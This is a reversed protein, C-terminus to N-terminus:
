MCKPNQELIIDDSINEIRDDLMDLLQKSDIGDVKRCFLAGSQVIDEYDHENLVLPLSDYLRKPHWEIYRLSNRTEINLEKRRYYLITSFILEDSATTYRFRKLFEPHLSCYDLIYAICRNSLSFWNWGGWIENLRPYSRRIIQLRFLIGNLHIKSIAKGQFIDNFNYKELRDKYKTVRWEKVQRPTDM